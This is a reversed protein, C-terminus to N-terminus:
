SECCFSLPLVIIANQNDRHNHMLDLKVHRKLIATRQIDGEPGEGLETGRTLSRAAVDVTLVVVKLMPVQTFGGLM